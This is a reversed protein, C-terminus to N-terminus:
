SHLNYSYQTEATRKGRFGKVRRNCKGHLAFVTDVAKTHSEKQTQRCTMVKTKVAVHRIINKVHKKKWEGRLRDCTHVERSQSQQKAQM